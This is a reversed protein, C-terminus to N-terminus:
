SAFKTKAEHVLESFYDLALQCITMPDNKALRKGLHVTPANAISVQITYTGQNIPVRQEQPTGENVIWFPGESGIVMRANPSPPPGAMLHHIHTEFSLRHKGEHFDETRADHIFRLLEDNRMQAQKVKYWDKFGAIHKGDKQLAYTIARSANLFSNFLSRFSPADSSARLQRFIVRSDELKTKASTFM